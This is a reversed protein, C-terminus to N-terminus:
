NCTLAGYGDNQSEAGSLCITRGRSPGAGHMGTAKRLVGGATLGWSAEAGGEAGPGRLSSSRPAQLPAHRRPTVIALSAVLALGGKAPM